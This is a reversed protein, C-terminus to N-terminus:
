WKTPVGDVYHWFNGATTAETESYFYVTAELLDVNGHDDININGWMEETGNYYVDTLADANLFAYEKIQEVSSGIIIYELNKCGRFLLQEISKVKDPIRINKLASLQFAGGGIYEVSDPIILQELKNNDSFIEGSISVLENPLIIQTPTTSWYFSMPASIPKTADRITYIDDSYYEPCAILHNGIYLSKYEYSDPDKYYNDHIGTGYFAYREIYKINDSLTVNILKPSESFAAAEIICDADIVVDTLNECRSFAHEGIVSVGNPITIKTIHDNYRFAFDLIEYDHGKINDPFVIETDDGDYDVLIYYGNQEDCYTM